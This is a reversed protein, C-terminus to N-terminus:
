AQPDGPKGPTTGPRPPQPKTSARSAKSTPPPLIAKDAADRLTSDHPNHYAKHLLNLGVHGLLKAVIASDVGSAIMRSAFAGRLHYPVLRGLGLRKGIRKFQSRLASATWPQMRGNRFIPGTPNKEALKRLMDTMEGSLWVTRIGSKGDVTATSREWDVQPAELTMAEGPRCGTALLFRVFVGLSTTGVHSVFKDIDEAKAPIRAKGKKGRIGALRNTDTWGKHMGWKAIMKAVSVALYRYNVGWGKKKETADHAKLWADVHLPRWDRVLVRKHHDVLDQGIQQYRDWTAPKVHDKQYDLWLDTLEIVTLNSRLPDFEGRTLKLRNLTVWAEQETDGIKMSRGGIKTWWGGRGKRKWPKSPRGM